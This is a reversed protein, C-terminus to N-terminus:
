CIREYKCFFNGFCFKTIRFLWPFILKIESGYSLYFISSSVQLLLFGSIHCGEICFAPPLSSFTSMKKANINPRFKVLNSRYCQKLPVKLISKKCQLICLITPKTRIRSFVPWHFGTKKCTIHLSLHAAKGSTLVSPPLRTILFSNVVFPWLYM